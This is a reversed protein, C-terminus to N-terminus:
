ESTETDQPEPETPAGEFHIDASGADLKVSVVFRMEHEAPDEPATTDDTSEAATDSQADSERKKIMEVYYEPLESYPSEVTKGDLLFTGSKTSLDLWYAAREGAIGLNLSGRSGTVSLNGVAFGGAAVTAGNLTLAGSNCRVGELTAQAGGSLTLAVESTTEVNKLSVTKGNSEIRVDSALSLAELAVDGGDSDVSIIKLKMEAPLYVNVSQEASAVKTYALYDRLGHFSINGEKFNDLFAFIQSRNTVNLMRNTETIDFTGVKFNVLEIRATEDESQCFRIAANNFALVLKDISSNTFDYTQVNENEGKQTVTTYLSIGQAKAQASAVRTFIFGLLVLVLAVGLFIVSAPKM